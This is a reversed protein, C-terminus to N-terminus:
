LKVDTKTLSRAPGPKSAEARPQVPPTQAIAPPRQIVPSSKVRLWPEKVVMTKGALDGIRQYKETAAVSAVVSIYVLGDDVIRLINRLVVERFGPPRGELTVVRLGMIKKGLTKSWTNECIVFYIIPLLWAGLVGLWITLVGFLPRAMVDEFKLAMFVLFGLRPTDVLVRDIAYAASRQFIPALDGQWVGAVIKPNKKVRFHFHAMIMVIAYFGITIGWSLPMFKMLKVLMGQMGQGAGHVEQSRDHWQQGSLEQWGVGRFGSSYFAHLNGRYDVLNLNSSFGGIVLDPLDMWKGDILEAVQLNPSRGNKESFAPKRTVLVMRSPSRVIHYSMVDNPFLNQEGLGEKNIPAYLLDPKIRNHEPDYIFPTWFVYVTEGQCALEIIQKSEAYLDLGKDNHFSGEEISKLDSDLRDFRLSNNCEITKPDGAFSPDQYQSPDSCWSSLIALSNSCATLKYHKPLQYAAPEGPVLGNFPILRGERVGVLRDGVTFLGDLNEIDAAKNWAIGDWKRLSVMRKAGKPLKEPPLNGLNSEALYLTDQTSIAAWPERFINEMAPQFSSFYSRLIFGSLLTSGWYALILLGGYLVALFINTRRIEDETQPYM